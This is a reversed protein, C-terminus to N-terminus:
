GWTGVNMKISVFRDDILCKAIKALKKWRPATRKRTASCGGGKGDHAYCDQSRLIFMYLISFEGFYAADISHIIYKM